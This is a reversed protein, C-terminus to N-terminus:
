RRLRRAMEITGSPGGNHMVCGGGGGNLGEHLIHSHFDIVLPKLPEGRRATAMLEDEDENTIERPPKLGKLLRSLNGGALKARVSDSVDAYDIYTRHAGMSMDTANSAFLLQNECGRSVLWEIGYSIQFHDFGVHLNRHELLLPIVLRQKDWKVGILMVPLAPFEELVRELDVESIETRLDFITLVEGAELEALLPMSARSTVSWKHVQPQLMIARVDHDQMLRTLEPPEPFEETAHPMAAWIPFLFDHGALRRSLKLNEHMPDYFLTSGTSAVCAGSISCHKMEDILHELTWRRQPHQAINPGFRTFADFYVCPTKM